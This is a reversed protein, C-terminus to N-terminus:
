RPWDQYLVMSRTKTKIVNFHTIYCTIQKYVINRIVPVFKRIESIGQFSSVFQTKQCCQQNRTSLQYLWAGQFLAFMNDCSKEWFFTKTYVPRSKIPVITSSIYRGEFGNQSNCGGTVRIDWFNYCKNALICNDVFACRVSFWYVPRQHQLDTLWDHANVKAIHLHQYTSMGRDFSRM